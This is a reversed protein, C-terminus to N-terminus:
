LLFFNGAQHWRHGHHCHAFHRFRQAHFPRERDTIDARTARLAAYVFDSMLTIVALDAQTRIPGTNGINAVNQIWLSTFDSGVLM